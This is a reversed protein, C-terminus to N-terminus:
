PGSLGQVKPREQDVLNQLELLDASTITDKKLISLLKERVLPSQLSPTGAFNGVLTKKVEMMTASTELRIRDATTIIHGPADSERMVQTIRDEARQIEAQLQQHYNAMQQTTLPTYADGGGGWVANDFGSLVCLFLSFFKIAISM